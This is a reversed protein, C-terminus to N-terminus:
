FPRVVFKAYAISPAWGIVARIHSRAIEVAEGPSPAPTYVVLNEGALYAHKFTVVYTFM